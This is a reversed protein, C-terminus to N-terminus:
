FTYVVVLGLTRIEFNPNKSEVNIITHEKEFKSCKEM